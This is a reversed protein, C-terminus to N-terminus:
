WSWAPVRAMPAGCSSVWTLATRPLTCTRGWSLCGRLRRVTRGPISTTSSPCVGNRRWRCTSSRPPNCQRWCALRMWWGSAGAVHSTCRLGLKTPILSYPFPSPATTSSATWSHTSGKRWWFRFIARCLWGVRKLEALRRWLCLHAAGVCTFLSWSRVTNTGDPLRFVHLEPADNVPRIIIPISQSDTKPGGLGTYGMDSVAITVADIGNWDNNGTYYLRSLALNALEITSIWQVYSSGAGLATGIVFTLGTLDDDMANRENPNISTTNTHFSMSLTGHNASLTVRVIGMSDDELDVDTLVVNPLYLPVDEDGVITSANLIVNELMDENFERYEYAPETLVVGHCRMWAWDCM